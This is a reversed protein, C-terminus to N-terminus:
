QQNKRAAQTSKKFQSACISNDKHLGCVQEGGGGVEVELQLMITYM